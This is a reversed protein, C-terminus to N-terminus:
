SGLTATIKNQNFNNLGNIAWATISYNGDRNADITLSIGCQATGECETTQQVIEEMDGFDSPNAISIAMRSIGSEFDTATAAASLKRTPYQSTDATIELVPPRSDFLMSKSLKINSIGALQLASGGTINALDFSLVAQQSDIGTQFYISEESEGENSPKYFMTVAERYDPLTNLRLRVIPLWSDAIDEIYNQAFVRFTIKYISNGDLFVPKSTFSEFENSDHATLFCYNSQCNEGAEEGQLFRPEEFIGKAASYTFNGSSQLTSINAVENFPPFLYTGYMPYLATTSPKANRNFSFIDFVLDIKEANEDMEFILQKKAEGGLNNSWHSYSRPGTGISLRGSTGSDAIDTYFQYDIRFLKGWLERSPNASYIYGGYQEEPNTIRVAPGYCGNYFYNLDIAPPFADLTFYRMMHYCIYNYDPTPEEIDGGQQLNQPIIGALVASGTIPNATSPNSNGAQSEALEGPPILAFNDKTIEVPEKTQATEGDGQTTGPTGSAPANQDQTNICGALLILALISLAFALKLKM